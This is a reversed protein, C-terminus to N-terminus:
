TGIIPKWLEGQLDEILDISYEVDLLERYISKLTKRYHKGNDAVM